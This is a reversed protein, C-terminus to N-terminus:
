TLDKVRALYAALAIAKDPKDRLFGAATNCGQCLIGRFRGTKHCHDIHTKKGKELPDKCSDCLGNHNAIQKYQEDTLKYKCKTWIARRKEPTQRARWKRSHEAMKKPNAKEWARARAKAKAKNEDSAHYWARARERSKEQEEPKAWRRANAAKIKDKNKPDARWKAMQEKKRARKEEETLRQKTM